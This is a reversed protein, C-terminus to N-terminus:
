RGALYNEFIRKEEKGRLKIGSFYKINLGNPCFIRLGDKDPDQLLKLELISKSMELIVGKRKRAEARTKGWWEGLEEAKELEEKRVSLEFGEEFNLYVKYVHSSSIGASVLANMIYQTMASNKAYIGAHHLARQKTYIPIIGDFRTGKFGSYKTISFYLYNRTAGFPRGTPLHEDDFLKLLSEISTGHLMLPARSIGKKILGTIKRKSLM